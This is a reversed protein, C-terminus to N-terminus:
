TDQNPNILGQMFSTNRMFYGYRDAFQKSYTRRRTIM